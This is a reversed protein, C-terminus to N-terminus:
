LDYGAGEVDGASREWWARMLVIGLGNLSHAVHDGEHGRERTCAAKPSEGYLVACLNTDSFDGSEVYGEEGPYVTRETFSLISNQGEDPM